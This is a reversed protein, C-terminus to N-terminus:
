SVPSLGTADVTGGHASVHNLKLLLWLRCLIGMSSDGKMKTESAPVPTSGAIVVPYSGPITM